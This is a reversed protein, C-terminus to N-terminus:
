IGCGGLSMVICVIGCIPYNEFILYVGVMFLIM